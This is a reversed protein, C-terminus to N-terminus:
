HLCPVHRPRRERTPPPAAERSQLVGSRCLTSALLYQCALPHPALHPVNTGTIGSIFSRKATHIHINRPSRLRTPRALRQRYNYTFPISPSHTSIVPRFPRGANPEGANGAPLYNTPRSTIPVPIAAATGTIAANATFPGVRDLFLNSRKQIAHRRPMNVVKKPGSIPTDM